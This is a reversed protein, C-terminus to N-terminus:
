WEEVDEEFDEMSSFVIDMDSTLSEETEFRVIHLSPYEYKKM